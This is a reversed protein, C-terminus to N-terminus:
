ELNRFLSKKKDEVVNKMGRLHKKIKADSWDLQLKEKIEQSTLSTSSLLKM